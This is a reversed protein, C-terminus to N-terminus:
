FSRNPFKTTRCHKPPNCRTEHTWLSGAGYVTSPWKRRVSTADWIDLKENKPTSPHNHRKWRYTTASFHGAKTFTKDPDRCKSTMWTYASCSSSSTTSSAHHGIRSRPSDRRKSSRQVINKGTDEPMQIDMYAEGYDACQIKSKGGHNRGGNKQYDYM